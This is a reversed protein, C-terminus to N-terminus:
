REAKEYAWDIAQKLTETIARMDEKKNIDIGCFTSGNVRANLVLFYIGSVFLASLARFNVGSDKFYTDTIDLIEEGMRERSDALGRSISNAENIQWRIMQQMERNGYFYNMQNELLQKILSQGFDIKSLEVLHDVDGLYGVWYDKQLLYAKFLEEVNGFYRYVLTKSVGAINAIKPATLGSYGKTMFIEGTADILRKKTEEKDKRYTEM